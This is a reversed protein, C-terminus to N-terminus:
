GSPLHRFEHGYLVKASEDNGLGDHMGQEDSQLSQMSSNVQVIQSKPNLICYSLVHM